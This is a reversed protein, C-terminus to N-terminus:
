SGACWPPLPIASPIPLPGCHDPRHKGLRLHSNSTHLRGDQGRGASRQTNQAHTGSGPKSKRSQCWALAVGQGLTNEGILYRFGRAILDPGAYEEETPQLIYDALAKRNHPYQEARTKPTQLKMPEGTPANKKQVDPDDNPLEPCPCQTSPDACSHPFTASACKDLTRNTKHKVSCYIHNAHSIISARTPKAHQSLDHVAQALEKAQQTTM